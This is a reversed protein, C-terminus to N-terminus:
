NDWKYFLDDGEISDDVDCHLHQVITMGNKSEYYFNKEGMNYIIYLKNLENKHVIIPVLNRENTGLLMRYYVDGVRAMRGSTYFRFDIEDLSSIKQEGRIRDFNIGQFNYPAEEDGQETSVEGIASVLDQYKLFLKDDRMIYRQYIITYQTILSNSEDPNEFKQSIEKYKEALNDDLRILEKVININFM